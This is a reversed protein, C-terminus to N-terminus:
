NGPHTGLLTSCAARGRDSTATATATTTATTAAATNTLKLHNPQKNVIILNGSLAMEVDADSAPQESKLPLPHSGGNIKELQRQALNAQKKALRAALKSNVAARTKEQHNVYTAAAANSQVQLRSIDRHVASSRRKSTIGLTKKKSLRPNSRIAPTVKTASM